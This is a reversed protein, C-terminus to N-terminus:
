GWNPNAEMWCSTHILSNLADNEILYKQDYGIKEGCWRCGRNSITHYKLCDRHECKSECPAMAGEEDSPTPIHFSKFPSLDLSANITKDLNM